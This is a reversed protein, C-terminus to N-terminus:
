DLNTGVGSLACADICTRGRVSQLRRARLTLSKGGAPGVVKLSREFAGEMVPLAAIEWKARGFTRTRKDRTKEANVPQRWRPGCICFFFFFLV